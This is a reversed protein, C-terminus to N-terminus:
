QKRIKRPGVTIGVSVAKTQEQKTRSGNGIGAVADQLHDPHHHGYVKELMEVSMGLYGAAQWRDTGSQMLWTAATHRLTHPTVKGSLGALSAARRFGTKVSAVPKGQWEVFHSKAM